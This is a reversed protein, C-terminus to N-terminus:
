CKFSTMVHYKISLTAIEDKFTTVDPLPGVALPRPDRHLDCDSHDFLRPWSYGELELLPLMYALPAKTHKTQYLPDDRYLAFRLCGAARM